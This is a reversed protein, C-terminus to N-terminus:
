SCKWFAFYEQISSCNTLGLPPKLHSSVPPNKCRWFLYELDSDKASFKFKGGIDSFLKKLNDAWSLSKSYKNQLLLFGETDSSKFDGKSVFPKNM